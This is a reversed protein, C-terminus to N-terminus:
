ECSSVGGHNGINVFFFPTKSCKLTTLNCYIQYKGNHQCINWIFPPSSSPSLTSLQAENFERESWDVRTVRLMELQSVRVQGLASRVTVAGTVATM